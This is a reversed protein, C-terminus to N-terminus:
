RALTPQGNEAVRENPRVAGVCSELWTAEPDLFLEGATRRLIGGPNVIYERMDALPMGLLVAPAGLLMREKGVVHMGLASQYFRAQEPAVSCVAATAPGSYTQLRLHAMLMMMLARRSLNRHARAVVLSGVEFLLGMQRAEAIEDPMEAESPLGHPGDVTICCAAVAEDGLRAIAFATDAALYHPIVRRGSATPAMYGAEVFGDHILSLAPDLDRIRDTLLVTLPESM